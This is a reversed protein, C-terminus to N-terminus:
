AEDTRSSHTDKEEMMVCPDHSVNFIRLRDKFMFMIRREERHTLSSIVLVRSSQGVMNCASAVQTLIGCAYM